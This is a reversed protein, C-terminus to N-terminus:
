KLQSAEAMRAKQESELNKHNVYSVWGWVAAVMAIMVAIILGTKLHRISSEMPVAADESLHGTVGLSKLTSM